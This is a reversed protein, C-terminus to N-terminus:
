NYNHVSTRYYYNSNFYYDSITKQSKHRNLRKVFLRLKRKRYGTSAPVHFEQPLLLEKLSGQTRPCKHIERFMWQCECCGGKNAVERQRVRPTKVHCERSFTIFLILIYKLVFHIFYTLFYRVKCEMCLVGKKLSPSLKVRCLISTKLYWWDSIKIETKNIM